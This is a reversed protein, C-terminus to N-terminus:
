DLARLQNNASALRAALMQSHNRYLTGTVSPFRQTVSDLAAMTLVAIEADEEVVVDANRVGGELLASEGFSMGRAFSAVSRHTGDPLPLQVRVAGALVFYIADAADGEHVVRAGVEYRGADVASEIAAIAEEDFERLLPQERLSGRIREQYLESLIREECWELAAHVDDFRQIGASEAIAALRPDRPAVNAVVLECGQEALHAGLAQLITAGPRDVHRVRHFDVIVVEVGETADVVARHVPETSAFLLDGQLEFVAVRGGEADLIRHEEPSRVRLSRVTDARYSRRIATEVQPRARQTHLELEQSIRTCAHIGRVSNGRDDLPPSYVAVGLQGPLVAVIGGAVGSKSPLGVTYGWEGAYDYMGCSSMVSLVREVNADGLVREQTIPHVGSCALTAAMLALDRCTVLASCQRFYLDLTVDPDDLMDFSRMLYAMARNRDGTASESEYVSMDTQLERGAFSSLIENIRLARDDAGDGPILGTTVIAGANVMPNFPRRSKEDVAIANFANGTPEVGVRRLVAEVGLVDLAAGYVFPKSISQITFERDTDGVEYVYGDTTALAIGCWSPDAKALEPIYSAVEGDGIARCEALLGDLFQEIAAGAVAHM